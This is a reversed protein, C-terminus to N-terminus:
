SNLTEQLTREVRELIDALEEPTTAQPLFLYIVHGIPRLIVGHRLGTRYIRQLLPDGAPLPERTAIDRVLELAGVMGIGRVDGVHPLAAFRQMGQRLTLTLYQGGEM